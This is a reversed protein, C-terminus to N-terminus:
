PAELSQKKPAPKRDIGWAHLSISATIGSAEAQLQLHAVWFEPSQVLLQALFNKSDLYSSSLRLDLVYKHFGSRSQGESEKAPALNLLEISNAAALGQITTLVGSVDIAAPIAINPSRSLARWTHDNQLRGKLRELAINVLQVDNQSRYQCWLSIALGFNLLSGCALLLMPIARSISPPLLGTHSSNNFRGWLLRRVLDSSGSRLEWLKPMNVSRGTTRSSQIWRRGSKRRNGM